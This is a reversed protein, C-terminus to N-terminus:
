QNQYAQYALFTTDRLVGRAETDGECFGTDTERQEEGIVVLM